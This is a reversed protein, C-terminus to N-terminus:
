CYYINFQMTSYIQIRSLKLFMKVSNFNLNKLEAALLWLYVTSTLLNDFVNSNRNAWGLALSVTILLGCFSKYPLCWILHNYRNIDLMRIVWLLVWSEVM